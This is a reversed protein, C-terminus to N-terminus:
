TAYGEFLEFFLFPLTLAWIFAFLLVLSHIQSLIDLYNKIKNVKTFQFNGYLSSVKWMFNQKKLYISHLYNEVINLINHVYYINMILQLIKNPFLLLQFQLGLYLILYLVTEFTLSLLKYKKETLWPVTTCAWLLFSAQNFPYVSSFDRAFKWTPEFLISLFCYLSMEFVRM